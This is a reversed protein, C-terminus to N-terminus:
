PSFQRRSSKRPQSSFQRSSLGTYTKNAKRREQFFLLVYPWKLRSIEALNDVIAYTNPWPLGKPLDAPRAQIYASSHGLIFNGYAAPFCDRDFVFAHLLQGCAAPM